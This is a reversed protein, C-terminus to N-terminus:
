FFHALSKLKYLEAHGNVLAVVEGSVTAGPVLISVVPDTTTNVVDDINGSVTQRRSFNFRSQDQVRSTRFSRNNTHVIINSPINHLKVLTSREIRIRRKIM